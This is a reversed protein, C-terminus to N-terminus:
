YISMERTNNCSVELWLLEKGLKLLKAKALGTYLNFPSLVSIFFKMDTIM